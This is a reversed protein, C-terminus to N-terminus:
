LRRDPYKDTRTTRLRGGTDATTRSIRLVKQPGSGKEYPEAWGLLRDTQRRTARVAITALEREDCGIAVATHTAKQPDIGIIFTM